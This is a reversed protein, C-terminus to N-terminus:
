GVGHAVEVAASAEPLVAAMGLVRVTEYPTYRRAGDVSWNQVDVLGPPTVIRWGDALERIEAETRFRIPSSAEEYAETMDDVRGQETDTSTAHSVVVVSGPALHERLGAMVAAPDAVFHLIAALVVATPATLDLLDGADPHRLISDLDRIDGGLVGGYGPRWARAHARVVPDNDYALVTAQPAVARVCKEVSDLPVDHVIGVGIDLVQGIGFEAVAWAAARGAFKFNERAVAPADPSSRVVEMAAQADVGSWSKGGLYYNYMLATRPRTGLVPGTM